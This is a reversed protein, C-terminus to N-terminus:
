QKLKLTTGSDYCVSCMVYLNSTKVVVSILTVFTDVMGLHEGMDKSRLLVTASAFYWHVIIVPCFALSVDQMTVVCKDTINSVRSGYAHM